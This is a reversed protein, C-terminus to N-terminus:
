LYPKCIWIFILTKPFLELCKGYLAELSYFAYIFGIKYALWLSTTSLKNWTKCSSIILVLVNDEFDQKAQKAM